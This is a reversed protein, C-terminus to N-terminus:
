VVHTKIRNFSTSLCFAFNTANIVIISNDYKKLDALIVIDEISMLLSEFFFPVEAKTRESRVLM